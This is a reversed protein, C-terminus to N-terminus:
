SYPTATRAVPKPDPDIGSVNLNHSKWHGSESNPNRNSLRDESFEFWQGRLESRIQSVRASSVQQRSAIEHVSEGNALSLVIQRKADPLQSFWSQFDMRFSVQDPIPTRPDELLSERWCDAAASPGKLRTTRGLSLAVESMADRCNMRQGTRRGARFRRVAYRALTSPFARRILGRRCLRLFALFAQVTVEQQAEERQSQPLRRLALSSSRLIGPLLGLFQTQQLPTCVGIPISNTM